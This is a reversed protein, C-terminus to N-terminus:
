SPARLLVLPATRGPGTGKSRLLPRPLNPDRKRMEIWTQEATILYSEAPGREGAIAELPRDLTEIPGGRYFVVPNSDFSSGYLYLRAEPAVRRNVEQMFSRYSKADAIVPMVVARTVFTFALSILVLRNAASPVRNRWLCSALSLWLVSWSLPAIAFSWGFTALSSEIILLDAREKAKLLGEISSFFWGPDHNWV